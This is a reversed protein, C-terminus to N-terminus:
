ICPGKPAVVCTGLLQGLMFPKDQTGLVYEPPLIPILLTSNSSFVIPRSVARIYTSHMGHQVALWNIVESIEATQTYGSIGLFAGTLSTEIYLAEQLFDTANAPQPINFSCNPFQFGTINSGISEVLRAGIHNQQGIGQFNVYYNTNSSNPADSLFSENM